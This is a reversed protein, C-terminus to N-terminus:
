KAAVVSNLLKAKAHRYRAYVAKLETDDLPELGSRKWKFNHDKTDDHVMLGKTCLAVCDWALPDCGGIIADIIFEKFNTM